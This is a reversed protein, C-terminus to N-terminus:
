EVDRMPALDSWAANRFWHDMVASGKDPIFAQLTGDNPTGSRDPDGAVKVVVTGETQGIRTRGVVKFVSTFGDPYVEHWTQNDMRQWVRLGGGAGFQYSHPMKSLDAATMPTVIETLREKDTGAQSPQPQSQPLSACGGALLLAAVAMGVMEIKFAIMTKM